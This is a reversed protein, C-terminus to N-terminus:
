FHFVVGTSIRVNDAFNTVNGGGDHAILAGIDNDHYYIWDFQALRIAISKKFKFDVGGGAMVALGTGSVYIVQNNPNYQSPTTVRAGGFLVHVFPNFKESGFSYVPGGAFTYIRSSANDGGYTFSHYNGSFDGTVGFHKSLNATVSADWGNFPSGIQRGLDSGISQYQYGGFVELKPNDQAMLPLSLVLFVSVCLLIRKM